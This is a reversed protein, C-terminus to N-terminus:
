IVGLERFSTYPRRDPAPQGIIIHDLLRVGLVEAVAVLRKTLRYDAESPTPDGSPHNHLVTLAFASQIIAPRFIERPHAICENVTGVSITEVSVLRYKTDLLAVRVSETRQAQFDAGFYDYFAQPDDLTVRPGPGRALRRGLELAAVIECAKATGIGKITRTLDQVSCRALGHLGEMKELLERGLTVANRGRMGTRIFVALLEANSLSAPGHGLLRERPREDDPLERIRESSSKESNM